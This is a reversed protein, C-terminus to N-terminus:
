EAEIAKLRLEYQSRCQRLEADLNQRLRSAAAVRV